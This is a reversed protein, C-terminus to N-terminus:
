GYILEQLKQLLLYSLAKGTLDKGEEKLYKEVLSKEEQTLEEEFYFQRKSLEAIKQMDSIMGLMTKEAAQDTFLAKLPESLLSFLEEAQPDKKEWLSEIELLTELFTPWISETKLEQVVSFHWEFHLTYFLKYAEELMEESLFLSLAGLEKYLEFLEEYVKSPEKEHREYYLAHLALFAKDLRLQLEKKELWAKQLSHELRDRMEEAEIVLGDEETLSLLINEVVGLHHHLEKLTLDPQSLLRQHIFTLIKHTEKSNNSM